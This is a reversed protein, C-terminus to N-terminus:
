VDADGEAVLVALRRESEHVESMAKDRAAELYEVETDFTRLVKGCKVCVEVIPEKWTGGLFSSCTTQEFDLEDHPCELQELRKEICEIRKKRIM